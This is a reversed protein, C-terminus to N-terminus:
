SSPSMCLSVETGYQFALFQSWSAEEGDELGMLAGHALRRAQVAAPTWRRGGGGFGVGGELGESRNRLPFPQVPLRLGASIASERLPHCGKYLGSVLILAAEQLAVLCHLDNYEATTHRGVTSSSFGLFAMASAPLVQTLMIYDHDGATDDEIYMQHHAVQRSGSAARKEDEKARYKTSGHQAIVRRLIGILGSHGFSSTPSLARAM